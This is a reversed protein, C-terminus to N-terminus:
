PELAPSSSARRQLVLMVPGGCTFTDKIEVRHVERYQPWSALHPYWNPFLVLYDPKTEELYRRVTAEKFPDEDKSALSLQKGLEAHVLGATDIINRRSFYAIAGVDNTAVVANPPSNDRLWEGLSVQMKQIDEVNRGYFSPGTKVMRGIQFLLPLYLIWRRYRKIGLQSISYLLGEVAVVVFFPYIPFLYRGFVGAGMFHINRDMCAYALPIAAVWLPLLVAWFRGRTPPTLLSLVGLPFLWGLSFNEMWFMRYLRMLYSAKPLLLGSPNTKAYFTNPFPRGTTKLCFLVTPLWALLLLALPLVIRLMNRGQAGQIRKGSRLFWALLFLLTAEPRAQTALALPIYATWHPIDESSTRSLLFLGASLLFFCLGIELGSLAGWLVPLSTASLATVPFVHERFGKSKWLAFGLLLCGGLSFLLGLLKACIPLPLGVLGCFGLLLSWLPATSGPTPQGPNYSFGEGEAWNRAFQLHIWSDDLPFGVHGNTAKWEKSVYLGIGLCFLLLAPAVSKAFGRWRM